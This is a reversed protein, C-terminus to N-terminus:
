EEVNQEVYYNYEAAEFEARREEPYSVMVQMVGTIWEEEGFAGGLLAQAYQEEWLAARYVMDNENWELVVRKEGLSGELITGDMGLIENEVEQLNQQMLYSVSFEIAEEEPCTYKVLLENNEKIVVSERFLEPFIIIYKEDISITKQWGRNVLTDPTVSPTPSPTPIPTEEPPETPEPRVTPEMTPEPTGTPMVVPTETAEPRITPESTPSVTVQPAKTTAPDPLITAEPSIMAEPTCTPVVITAAIEAGGTPNVPNVDVKPGCSALLLLGATMVIGMILKKM